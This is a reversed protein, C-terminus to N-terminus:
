SKRLYYPIKGLDKIPNMRGMLQDKASPKQAFSMDTTARPAIARTGQPLKRAKAEEEKAMRNALIELQDKARPGLPAPSGSRMNDPNMRGMLQDKASPRPPFSMDGTARPYQKDFENQPLARAKAEEESMRKAFIDGIEKGLQERTKGATKIDYGADKLAKDAAADGAARNEAELDMPLKGGRVGQGPIIRGASDREWIDPMTGAKIQAEIRGEPSNPNIYPKRPASPRSQAQQNENDYQAQLEKRLKLEAAEVDADSMKDVGTIGKSRLTRRKIDLVGRKLIEKDLDTSELADIETQSMGLDLARQKKATNYGKEDDYQYGFRGSGKGVGFGYQTAKAMFDKDNRMAEVAAKRQAFKDTPHTRAADRMAQNFRNQLEQTTKRKAINEQKREERRQDMKSGGVSASQNFGSFNPQTNATSPTFFNGVTQAVTKLGDLWTSPNLIDFQENLIIYYKETLQKKNM